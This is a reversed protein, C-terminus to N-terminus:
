HLPKFNQRKAGGIMCGPNLAPIPLPRGHIYQQPHKEYRHKKGHNKRDKSLLLRNNGTKGDILEHDLPIGKETCGPDCRKDLGEGTGAAIEPIHLLRDLRKFVGVPAHAVVRHHDNQRLLLQLISIDEDLDDFGLDPVNGDLPVPM